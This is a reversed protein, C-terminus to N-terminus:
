FFYRLFSFFISCFFSTLILHHSILIIDFNFSTLNVFMVNCSFSLLQCWNIGVMFHGLVCYYSGGLFLLWLLLMWQSLWALVKFCTQFSEQCSITHQTIFRIDVVHNRIWRYIEYNTLCVVWLLSFESFYTINKSNSFIIM